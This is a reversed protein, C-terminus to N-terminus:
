FAKYVIHPAPANLVATVSLTIGLLVACWATRAYRSTLVSGVVEYLANWRERLTEAASLLLAAVCVVLVCSLVIAPLGLMAVFAGLQAWSSWFWLLTFAFWASTLARSFSGYV